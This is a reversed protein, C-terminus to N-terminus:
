GARQEHKTHHTESAAGEPGLRGLGKYDRRGFGDAVGM